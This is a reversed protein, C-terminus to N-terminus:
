RIYTETNSAIAALRCQGSDGSTLPCTRLKFDDMSPIDDTIMMVCHDDTTVQLGPQQLVRGSHLSLLSLHRPGAALGGQQGHVCDTLHSCM